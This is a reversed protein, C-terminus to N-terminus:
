EEEKKKKLKRYLEGLYLKVKLVYFPSNFAKGVAKNDSFVLNYGFGSGVGIWPLIKYQAAISTEIVQIPVPELEVLERNSNYFRRAVEGVGIQLPVSMEFNGKVYIVREYFLSFFGYDLRLTDLPLPYEPVKANRRKIDDRMNYIGLGYRNLSNKTEIGVRIGLIKSRRNEIFSNRSDFGFIFKRKGPHSFANEEMKQAQVGWQILCFALCFLWKIKAM